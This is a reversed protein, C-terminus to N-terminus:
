KVDLCLLFGYVCTVQSQAVPKHESVCMVDVMSLICNYNTESM